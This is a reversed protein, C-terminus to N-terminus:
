LLERLVLNGPPAIRLLQTVLGAALATLHFRHSLSTAPLVEESAIVGPRDSPTYSAHQRAHGTDWYKETPPM